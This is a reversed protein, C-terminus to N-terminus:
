YKMQMAQFGKYEQVKLNSIIFNVGEIGIGMMGALLNVQLREEYNIPRATYVLLFAAEVILSKDLWSLKNAVLKLDNSLHNSQQMESVIEQLGSVCLDSGTIKRFINSATEIGDNIGYGVLLYALVSKLPEFYTAQTGNKSPFAHGCDSCQMYEATTGLPFTRMFFITFYNRDVVKFLNKQSKCMPCNFVGLDETCTFIKEGFLFLM